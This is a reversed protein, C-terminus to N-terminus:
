IRTLASDCFYLDVFSGERMTMVVCDSQIVYSSPSDKNNIVTSSLLESLKFQFGPALSLSKLTYDQQSAM